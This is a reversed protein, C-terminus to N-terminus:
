RTRCTHLWGEDPITWENQDNQISRRSIAKPLANSVASFTPFMKKKLNKIPPLAEFLSNKSQWIWIILQHM